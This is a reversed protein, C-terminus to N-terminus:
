KKVQIATTPHAIVWGAALRRRDHCHFQGCHWSICGRSGQESSFYIDARIGSHIEISYGDVVSNILLGSGLENHEKFLPTLDCYVSIEFSVTNKGQVAGCLMAIFRLSSGRVALRRAPVNSRDTGTKGFVM